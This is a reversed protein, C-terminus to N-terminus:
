PALGLRSHKAGGNACGRPALRLPERSTIPDDNPVRRMGCSLDGKALRKVVQRLHLESITQLLEEGHNEEHPIPVAVDNACNDRKGEAQSQCVM